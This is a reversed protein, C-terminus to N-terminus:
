VGSMGYVADAEKIQGPLIHIIGVIKRACKEPQMHNSIM